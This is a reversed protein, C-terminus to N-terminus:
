PAGFGQDAFLLQAEHSLLFAVFAAAARPNPADALV